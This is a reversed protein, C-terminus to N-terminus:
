EQTVQEPEQHEVEVHEHEKIKEFPDEQLEQASENARRHEEQMLYAIENAHGIVVHLHNKAQDLQETLASVNAKAKQSEANLLTAREALFKISM